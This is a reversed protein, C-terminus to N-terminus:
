PLVEQLTPFRYAQVPHARAEAPPDPRSQGLPPPPEAQFLLQVTVPFDGPSLGLSRVAHRAAFERQAVMEPIAINAVYKSRRFHWAGEWPSFADVRPFAYTRLIGRRDFVLAELRTTERVPDPAFMGWYQWLGLPMLYCGAALEGARKIPCAPLNWVVLAAVHVTVFASVALRRLTWSM